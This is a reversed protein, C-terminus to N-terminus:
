RAELADAIRALERLLAERWANDEARKHEVLAIIRDQRALSLEHSAELQGSDDGEVTVRPEHYPDFGNTAM